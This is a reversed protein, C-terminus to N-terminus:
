LFDFCYCITTTVKKEMNGFVLDSSIKGKQKSSMRADLVCGRMTM